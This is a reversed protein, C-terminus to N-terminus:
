SDDSLSKNFSWKKPDIQAGIKIKNSKVLFTSNTGYNYVPYSSTLSLKDSLNENKYAWSKDDFLTVEDGNETVASIQSYSISSFLISFLFFRM